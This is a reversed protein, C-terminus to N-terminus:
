NKSKNASNSSSISGKDLHDINFSTETTEHRESENETNALSDLQEQTIITTSNNEAIHELHCLETVEADKKDTSIEEEHENVLTTHCQEGVLEDIENFSKEVIEICDEKKLKDEKNEDCLSRQDMEEITQMMSELNEIDQCNRELSAQVELKIEIDNIIEVLFNYLEKEINAEDQVLAVMSKVLENNVKAKTEDEIVILDCIDMLAEKASDDIFNEDSLTHLSITGSPKSDFETMSIDYETAMNAGNQDSVISISTLQNM